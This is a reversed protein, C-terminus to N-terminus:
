GFRRVRFLEGPALLRFLQRVTAAIVLFFDLLAHALDVGAGRAVLEQAVLRHEDRRVDRNLHQLFPQLGRVPHNFLGLVHIRITANIRQGTQAVANQRNTSSWLLRVMLIKSVLRRSLSSSPTGAVVPGLKLRVLLLVIALTLSRTCRSHHGRRLPQLHIETTSDRGTRVVEVPINHRLVRQIFSPSSPSRAFEQSISLSVKQLLVSVIVIITIVRRVRSIGVVFLVVRWRSVGFVKTSDATVVTLQELVLETLLLVRDGFSM